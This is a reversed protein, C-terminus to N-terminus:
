FDATNFSKKRLFIFIVFVLVTFIFLGPFLWVKNLNYVYASILPGVAYGLSECAGVFGFVIGESKKDEGFKLLSNQLGSNLFTAGLFYIIIAVTFISIKRVISLAGLAIIMFIFSIFLQKKVGIKDSTFGGIPAFIGFIFLYVSIIVSTYFTSSGLVEQGYFPFISVICGYIFDGLLAIIGLLVIKALLKKEKITKFINGIKSKFNGKKNEINSRNDRKNEFATINDKVNEDNCKDINKNDLRSSKATDKSNVDAKKIKMIIFVVTLIIGISSMYFVLNYNNLKTVIFGGIISAIAGSLTFVASDYGTCQGRKEEDLSRALLSFVAPASMGLIAGQAIYIISAILSSSNLTYLFPIIAMLIFAIILLLKDGIKNTIAGFVLQMLAKSLGYSSMVGGIILSSLGLSNFYLPIIPIMLSYSFGFAFRQICFYLLEKKSFLINNKLNM